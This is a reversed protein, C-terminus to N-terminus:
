PPPLQNTPIDAHQSSQLKHSAAAFAAPLLLCTEKKIVDALLAPLVKIAELILAIASAAHQPVVTKGIHRAGIVDGLSVGM